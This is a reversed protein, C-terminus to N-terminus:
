KLLQKTIYKRYIVNFIIIQSAMYIEHALYPIYDSNINLLCFFHNSNFQLVNLKQKFFGNTFLYRFSLSFCEFFNNEVIRQPREEFGEIQIKSFFFDQQISLSLPLPICHQIKLLIFLVGLRSSNIFQFSGCLYCLVFCKEPVIFPVRHVFKM